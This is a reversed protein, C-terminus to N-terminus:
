DFRCPAPGPAAYVSAATSSPGTSRIGGGAAEGSYYKSYDVTGGQQLAATEQMQIDGTDLGRAPSASIAPGGGTAREFGTGAAGVAPGSAATAPGGVGAPPEKGLLHKVGVFTTMGM